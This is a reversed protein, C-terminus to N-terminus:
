ERYEQLEELLEDETLEFWEGTIRCEEFLGHFYDETEQMDRAKIFAVIELKDSNSTQLTRLRGMLCKTLGIKIRPEQRHEKIFYVWQAVKNQCRNLHRAYCKDGKIYVEEDENQNELAQELQQQLDEVEQQLQTNEIKVRNIEENINDMVVKIEDSRKNSKKMDDLMKQLYNIIGVQEPLTTM